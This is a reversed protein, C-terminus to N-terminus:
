SRRRRIWSRTFGMGVLGLLLLGVTGPEPVLFTLDDFKMNHEMSPIEREYFVRLREVNGVLPMTTSWTAGATSGSVMTYRMTASQGTSNGNVYPIEAAIKLAGDSDNNPIPFQAEGEWDGAGGGFAASGFGQGGAGVEIGGNSAVGNDDRMEFSFNQGWDAITYSLTATGTFNAAVNDFDWTFHAFGTNNAANTGMYNGTLDPAGSEVLLDTINSTATLNADADFANSGVAAGEWNVVQTQALTTSTMCVFLVAIAFVSTLVKRM